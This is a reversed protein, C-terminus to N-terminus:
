PAKGHSKCCCTRFCQFLELFYNETKSISLKDFLYKVIPFFSFDISLDVNPRVLSTKDVFIEGTHIVSYCIVTPFKLAMKIDLVYVTLQVTCKIMLLMSPSSWELEHFKVKILLNCNGRIQRDKTKLTDFVQYGNKLCRHTKEYSVM